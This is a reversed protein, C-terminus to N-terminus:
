RQPNGSEKEVQTPPRAARPRLGAPAGPQGAVPGGAGGGDPAPQGAVEDGSVQDPPRHGNYPPGLRRPGMRIWSLLQLTAPACSVLPLGEHKMLKTLSEQVVCPSGMLM